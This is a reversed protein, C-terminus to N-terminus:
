VNDKKYSGYYNSIRNVVYWLHTGSRNEAAREARARNIKQGGSGIGSRAYFNVARGGAPYGNPGFYERFYKEELTYSTQNCFSM